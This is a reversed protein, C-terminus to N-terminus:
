KNQRTVRGEIQASISRGDRQAARCADALAERLLIGTERANPQGLLVPLHDGGQAMFNNIAVAFSAGPDLPAGNSRRLEQVRDGVPRAYDVTYRLGSAHLFGGREAIAELYEKIERGSLRALVITNDFPIVRYVDSYHIPGADISARVGGPNQLAFEAGAAARMVDVVWNGMACEEREAPLEVAATGIQEDLIPAVEARADSILQLVTADPRVSEAGASDAYVTLMSTRAETVRALSRDYTLDIRGVWRGSSGAQVYPTGEVTGDLIRHTHGGLIAAEGQIKKALEAVEGEIPGDDEQTGGDHCVIIALDAQKPVLEGIWRNAVTAPALFELSTVNQPLTVNPTDPTILGIVLVRLGRRELITYPKAWSPPRGTAREIVNACLLPFRAQAIREALVALGFDFEHNGVAGADFGAENMYAISARGETLNSLATGQYIDGADLLLTGDPNSAKERDLVATLYAAGGIPRKSERDTSESELAGHFDTTELLTLHVIQPRAGPRGGACSLGATLAATLLVIRIASRRLPHRM